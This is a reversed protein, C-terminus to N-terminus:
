IVRIKGATSIFIFGGGRKAIYRVCTGNM